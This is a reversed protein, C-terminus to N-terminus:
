HDYSGAGKEFIAILIAASLSSLLCNGARGDAAAHLEQWRSYKFEIM